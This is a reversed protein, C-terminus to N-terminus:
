SRLRCVPRREDKHENNRIIKRIMNVTRKDVDIMSLSNDELHRLIKDVLEYSLGIEEEAIHNKWLGPSSKKETINKSLSLYRALERVETKYLDALPFIDAAGDGHKTYYGIKLESKDTTGVVLRNTIGAYYYLICMRLRSALNGQAYKEYPLQKMIQKKIKDIRIIKHNINLFKALEVADKTDKRPTVDLDPMIVGLVRIHGLAQAAISATVSSDLGGSLGLVVGNSRRNKVEKSIFQKILQCDKQISM